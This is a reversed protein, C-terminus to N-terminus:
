EYKNEMNLFQEIIKIPTFKQPPCISVDQEMNELPCANGHCQSVFHCTVCGTKSYLRPAVWNSYNKNLVLQGSEDLKGVNNKPQDLAVTCKKVSWDPSIVFNSPKAAYCSSAGFTLCISNEGLTFGRALAGNEYANRIEESVDTACLCSKDGLRNNSASYDSISRFLISFRKDNGILNLLFDLYNNIDSTSSTNENFNVRIMVRLDSLDVRNVINKLNLVITDFTKKGNALPRLKNHHEPLGDLTIQYHHVKSTYLKELTDPTLLYGNTTASSIFIKNRSVAWSQIRNNLDIIFKKNLLPEGGFYEIQVSDPNTEHVLSEIAQEHALGMRMKQAHDEYCYVCNFNCAEGAPLLILSLFNEPKRSAEYHKKVESIIVENGVVLIFNEVLYQLDQQFNKFLIADLGNVSDSGNLELNQYIPHDVDFLVVYSSNLWNYVVWENKNNKYRTTTTSFKYIM